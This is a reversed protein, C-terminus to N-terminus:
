LLVPLLPKPITLIHGETDFLVLHISASTSKWPSFSSSLLVAPISVTCGNTSPFIVHSHHAPIRSPVTTTNMKVTIIRTPTKVDADDGADDWPIMGQMMGQIMGWMM